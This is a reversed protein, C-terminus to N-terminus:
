VKVKRALPVLAGNSDVVGVMKAEGTNPDVELNLHLEYCTYVFKDLATDTLGMEQGEEYNSEKDAHLYFDIRLPEEQKLLNSGCFPCFRSDRHLVGLECSNPCYKM